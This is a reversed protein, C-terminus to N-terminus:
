VLPGHFKQREAHQRYRDALTEALRGLFLSILVAVLSLVIVMSVM